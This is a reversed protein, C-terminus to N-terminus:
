VGEYGDIDTIEQLSYTEQYQIEISEREIEELKGTDLVTIVKTSQGTGSIIYKNNM